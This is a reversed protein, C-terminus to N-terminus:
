ENSKRYDKPNINFKEFLNYLQSREINISAAMAKANGNFTKLKREIFLKQAKSYFDKYETCEDIMDNIDISQSWTAIPPMKIVKDSLDIEM